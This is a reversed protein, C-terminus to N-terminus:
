RHDAVNCSSYEPPDPYSLRAEAAVAHSPLDLRRVWRSETTVDRDENPVFAQVTLNESGRRM